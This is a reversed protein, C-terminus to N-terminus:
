VYSQLFFFFNKESAKFLLKLKKEENMEAYHASNWLILNKDKLNDYEKNHLKLMQTSRNLIYIETLLFLSKLFTNYKYCIYQLYFLSVSNVTYM